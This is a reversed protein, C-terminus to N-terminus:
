SDWSNPEWLLSELEEGHTRCTPRRMINQYTPLSYFFFYNYNVALCCHLSTFYTYSELLSSVMRQMIEPAGKVSAFYNTQLGEAVGAVTSMRKLSSSFHFRHFIKVGRLNQHSSSKKPVVVDKNLDFDIWQLTVKELPDGVVTGDELTVLAHCTALTQITEV